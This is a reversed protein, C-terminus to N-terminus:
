PQGMDVVIFIDFASHIFQHNLLTVVHIKLYPVDAVIVRFADGHHQRCSINGVDTIERMRRQVLHLQVLFAECPADM